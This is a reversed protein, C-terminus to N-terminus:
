IGSSLAYIPQIVSVAFFGVVTGILLMLLPEILTSMDKTIAAVDDEYFIAVNLLMESLKGTEEGVETMEGVLVPFLTGEKKFFESLPSGKQVGAAAKQMVEKYFVNQLVTEAIEIARVMNVGSSILSSITRAATASNIEKMLGSFIPIRLFVYDFYRQGKPTRWVYIALFVLAVFALIVLFLNNVMFDSAGMIFRTTLPLEVNFEKFASTLNPIVYVLMVVGIIIMAFFIVAPYILAGHVKKKLAYTKDLQDAVIKLSEPLGGSEEGAGVMSVFLPSFVRPYKGLAQALSQGAKIDDSVGKIVRRFKPNQSQKELIDLARLLSLGASLMIGLNKAFVVKEHLKVSIFIENFYTWDYKKGSSIITVSIPVFGEASLDRSIQFRDTGEKEGTVIKGEKDKAKYTFKAM